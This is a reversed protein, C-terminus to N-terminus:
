AVSFPMMAAFFFSIRFTAGAGGAAGRRLLM